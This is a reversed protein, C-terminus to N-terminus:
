QSFQEMWPIAVTWIFIAAASPLGTLSLTSLVGLVILLKRAMSGEKRYSRLSVGKKTPQVYLSVASPRAYAM